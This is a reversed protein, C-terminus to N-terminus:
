KTKTITPKDESKYSVAVVRIFPSTADYDIQEIIYPKRNFTLKIGCRIAKPRKTTIMAALTTKSHEIRYGDPKGDEWARTSHLPLWLPTESYDKTITTGVATHRVAKKGPYTSIPKKM